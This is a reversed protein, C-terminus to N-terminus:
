KRRIYAALLGVAVVGGIPFLVVGMEFAAQERQLTEYAELRKGRLSPEDKEPGNRPEQTRTPTPTSTPPPTPTPTRCPLFIEATITFSTTGGEAWFFEVNKGIFAKAGEFTIIDFEGNQLEIEMSEGNPLKVTLTLPKVFRKGDQDEMHCWFILDDSDKGHTPCDRNVVLKAPFPTDVEFTCVPGAQGGVQAEYLNLGLFVSSDVGTLTGDASLKGSAVEIRNGKTINWIVADWGPQAGTVTLTVSDTEPDYSGSLSDCRGTCPALLDETITFSKPDLNGVQITVDKGIFGRAGAITHTFVGNGDTKRGIQPGDELTIIVDAGQFPNGKDNLAKVTVILDNSHRGPDACARDVTFSELVPPPTPTPTPEPIVEFRQLGPPKDEGTPLLIIRDGGFEEKYEQGEDPIIGGCDLEMCCAEVVKGTPGHKFRAWACPCRPDTEKTEIVFWNASAFAIQWTALTMVIVGVTVLARRTKRKM